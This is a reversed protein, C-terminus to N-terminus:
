GSRLRPLTTSPRTMSDYGDYDDYGDYGDYGDYDDYSKDRKM